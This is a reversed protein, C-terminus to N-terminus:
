KPAGQQQLKLNEEQVKTNYAQVETNFAARKNEYAAIKGNLTTIEESIKDYEEQNQIELRQKELIEREQMLAEFESDLAQKTQDLRMKVATLDSQEPQEEPVSEGAPEEVQNQQEASADPEREGDKEPGERFETYNPIQSRQNEPVQTLDDTFRVNGKEDVYRYFDAFVPLCMFFISGLLIFWKTYKM